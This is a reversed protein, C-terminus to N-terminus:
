NPFCKSIRKGQRLTLFVNLFTQESRAPTQVIGLRPFHERHKAVLALNSETACESQLGRSPLNAEAELLYAAQDATHVLDVLDNRSPCDKCPDPGPYAVEIATQCRLKNAIFETMCPAVGIPHIVDGVYAEHADHMLGAYQTAPCGGFLMMLRAVIVSHRAVNFGRVAGGYRNFNSLHFAIDRILVDGPTVHWPDVWLGSHMEM